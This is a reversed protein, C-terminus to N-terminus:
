LARMVSKDQKNALNGQSKLISNTAMAENRTANSTNMNRASQRRKILVVDIADVPILLLPNMVQRQKDHSVKGLGLKKSTIQQIILPIIM